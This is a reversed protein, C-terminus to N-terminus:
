NVQGSSDPNIAGWGGGGPTQIEVIDGAKVNFQCSGSLDIPERGLRQWRNLGREGSEGGNLGYPPSCDLSRRNTVLSVNVPSLFEFRRVMGDGGFHLGAGGSGSRICFNLLRVPYRTELIEPDTLRTNTMHSHVASAGHGQSTAGCGGGMTEYFGFKADGFLFNNMTGQSAAAAQLAGFVVDVIRQSTEVNGGGVAPLEHDRLSSVSEPSRGGLPNLFCNPLCIEIPSLVGQNLPIPAGILVRLCYLIASQVIAPNTNFNNDRAPDTETFDFRLGGESVTVILRIAQGGDLQDTFAFKGSPLNQILALTHEAASDQVHRAYAAVRSWGWDAVFQQLRERGLANAAVQAQIDQLNTEPSRSPYKAGQLTELIAPNIEGTATTWKLNRLVVGEQELCTAFPPMSGPAIGGIEAHHARSAVWFEPIPLRGAAAAPQQIESASSNVFVPTVVTVDPLHSGGQFPDNTIFVDTPVFPGCQRLISKVTESMAGLHVPIHPANVLLNGSGDFVACSFDLREKVNVSSCTAQLTLGMQSAIETLRHCFLELLVPDRPATTEREHNDPQSQTPNMNSRPVDDGPVLDSRGRHPTAAATVHRQLRIVGLRNREASWDPELWITSNPVDIVQPGIGLPETDKAFSAGGEATSQSGPVVVEVELTALQLPREWRVGFRKGFDSWFQQQIEAATTPRTSVLELALCQDTGAVHVWVRTHFQLRNSDSPPLQQIAQKRLEPIVTEPLQALHWDDVPWALHKQAIRRLESHGIGYASLLASDPHVLVEKIGLQQAVGCVQQAAAGGFAVIPYDRPDMGQRISVAAIAGAIHSNAIQLFAAALEDLSYTRGTAQQISAALTELARAVVARQLPLPFHEARIRGLWVNMDTITLPGGRGYCAPGPDAGASQPGVLLRQGDFWCISGGGAAVTEIALTPTQLVVGAKRTENQLAVSGDLRAVDTSTGGMDFGIARQYGALRAVTSFGVVGGAPGSLVSDKGSFQVAPVLGGSSTMMLLTGQSGLSAEIEAVYDRLVPNLYADLVTTSARPVFRILPSCRHSLSVNRFGFPQALELLKLEHQPNQYAHLLCIALSEIGQQKLQSFVERVQEPALCQLVSGDASLREDIEVATAYLQAAKTVTLVFLDPRQQDGIELADRFGRTTVLATRSGTRTLLANTGRTTGLRLEIPPLPENQGIGLVLRIALLPALQKTSFEATLEDPLESWDTIDLHPTNRTTDKPQRGLQITSDIASHSEVIGQALIAGDANLLSCDFGSLVGDALKTSTTVQWQGPLSRRKLRCRLRSSSLVKCRSWEGTPSIGFCDTFTGGVDIWFRWATSCHSAQSM